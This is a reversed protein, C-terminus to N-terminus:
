RVRHPPMERSKRALGQHGAIGRQDMRHPDGTLRRHYFVRRWSSACLSVPLWTDLIWYSIPIGTVISLLVMKTFDGSLLM